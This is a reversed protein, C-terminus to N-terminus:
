YKTTKCDANSFIYNNGDAPDTSDNYTAKRIGNETEFYWWGATESGFSDYSVTCGYIKNQVGASLVSLHSSGKIGYKSGTVECSTEVDGNSYTIVTSSLAIFPYNSVIKQCSDLQSIKNGESDNGKDGKEGRDGKDGKEGKLDVTIWKGEQCARMQKNSAVYVLQGENAAQCNPLSAENTVYMSYTETKPKTPTSSEVTANEQISGCSALSALTVITCINKIM